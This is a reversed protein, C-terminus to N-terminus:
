EMLDVYVDSYEENERFWKVAYSCTPYAQKSDERLKKAFAELIKGGLGQGRLAEDVFVKTINVVTDSVDKYLLEAQLTGDPQNFYIRGTDFIFDM